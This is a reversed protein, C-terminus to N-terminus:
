HLDRGGKVWRLDDKQDLQLAQSTIGSAWCHQEKAGTLNLNKFDVPHKQEDEWLHDSPEESFVSLGGRGRRSACNVLAGRVKM